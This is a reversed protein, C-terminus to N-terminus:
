PINTDGKAVILKDIKVQEKTEIWLTGLISLSRVHYVTLQRLKYVIDDGREEKGKKRKKGRLTSAFGSPDNKFPM